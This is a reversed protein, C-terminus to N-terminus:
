KSFDALVQDLEEEPLQEVKRLDVMQHSKVESEVKTRKVWKEAHEYYLQILKPNGSEKIQKLHAFRVLAGYSEYNNQMREQMVQKFKPSSLWRYLTARPVSLQDALENMYRFRLPFTTLAEIVEYQKASLTETGSKVADTTGGLVELVECVLSIAEKKGLGKLMEVVKKKVTVASVKKPSVTKKKAALATEPKEVGKKKPKVARVTAKKPM